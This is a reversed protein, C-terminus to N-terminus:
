QVQCRLEQCRGVVGLYMQVYFARGVTLIYKMRLCYGWNALM